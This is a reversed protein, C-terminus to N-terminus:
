CNLHPQPSTLRLLTEATRSNMAERRLYKRLHFTRCRATSLRYFTGLQYVWLWGRSLNEFNALSPKNHFHYGYALLEHYIIERSDDHTRPNRNDNL